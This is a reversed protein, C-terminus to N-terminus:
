PRRQHFLFFPFGSWGMGAQRFMKQNLFGWGALLVKKDPIKIVINGAKLNVLAKENDHWVWNQRKRHKDNEAM